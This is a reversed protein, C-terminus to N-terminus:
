IKDRKSFELLSKIIEKYITDYYKLLKAKKDDISYIDCLNIYYDLFDTVNFRTFILTGESGLILLLFRLPITSSIIFLTTLNSSIHTLIEKLLTRINPSTNSTTNDFTTILLPSNLKSTNEV